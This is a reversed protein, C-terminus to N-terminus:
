QRIREQVIQRRQERCRAPAEATVEMGRGRRVALVGRRELEQYAKAVTNPHVLLQEALDRVSPFLGGPRYDGAAVAFTVQRVIQDHISVPSDPSIRFFM